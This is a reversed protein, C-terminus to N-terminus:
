PGPTSRPWGGICVNGHSICVGPEVIVTDSISMQAIAMTIGRAIRPLIPVGLSWMRSGFRYIVQALFGDTKWM